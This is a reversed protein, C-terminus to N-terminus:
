VTRGCFLIGRTANGNVNDYSGTIVTYVESASITITDGQQINASPSSYRFHILVFDDPIYYPVPMFAANLPLGKIVANYNTDSTIQETGRNAFKLNTNQYGGRSRFLANSDRYYPRVSRTDQPSSVNNLASYETSAFASSLPDSNDYDSDDYSAYGFEAMRKSPCKISNVSSHNSESRSGSLSSRFVLNPASTTGTTYTAGDSITAIAHIYTFGGLFVHNLDWLNTTFNHFFFTSFTKGLLHTSSLTPASYSFVVFNPDIGSRYINLNLQYSTNNGTRIHNIYNANNSNFYLRNTMSASLSADFSPQIHGSADFINYSGIDLNAAGAFRKGKAAGSNYNFSSRASDPEAFPNYGSGSMFAVNSTTGSPIMFARYTDGYLKNEQITHRLVGYKQASAIDKDYFSATSGIGTPTVSSTAVPLVNIYTANTEPYSASDSKVWYTGAQGPLFTVTCIGGTSNTGQNFVNFVSNTNAAGVKDTAVMNSELQNPNWIINLERSSPSSNNNTLSLTDGEYVTIVTSAGSVVGNRDQGAATYASTFTVAYSVAGSVTGAICVKVTLNAGGGIDASALTVIEGGTYGYGPRNVHIVNVKGHSGRGVYFLAGTGVGTTSSQKVSEYATVASGVTGGGSISSVGVVLGTQTGGHWGLSKFATELQNVLDNGTWTGINATNIGIITTTIAM